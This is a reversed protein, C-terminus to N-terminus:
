HGSLYITVKLVCSRQAFWPSEKHKTEHTLFYKINKVFNGELKPFM